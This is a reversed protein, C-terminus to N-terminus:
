PFEVLPCFKKYIASTMLGLFVMSQWLGVILIKPLFILVSFFVRVARFERALRKEKGECKRSALAEQRRTELKEAITLVGYLLVLVAVPAVLLLIITGLWGYSIVMIIILYSIASVSCIIALCLGVIELKSNGLIPGLVREARGRGLTLRVGWCLLVVPLAMTCGILSIWFPVCMTTRYPRPLVVGFGGVVFRYMAGIVLVIWGPIAINM